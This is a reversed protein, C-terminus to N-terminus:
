RRIVTPVSACVSRSNDASDSIKPRSDYGANAPLSAGTLMLVLTYGDPTAKAAARMGIVSGAGPRNEITVQQGLAASLKQAIMRGVADAGGGAPYPVILTVPRSPYSQPWAPRSAAAWAGTGAALHLFHRRPLKM